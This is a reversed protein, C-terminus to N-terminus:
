QAQRIPFSALLVSVSLRPPCVGRHYTFAFQNGSTTMSVHDKPVLLQAKDDVVGHVVVSDLDRREVFVAASVEDTFGDDFELM